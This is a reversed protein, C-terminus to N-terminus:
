CKVNSGLFETSWFIIKSTSTVPFEFKLISLINRGSKYYLLLEPTAPILSRKAVISVPRFTPPAATGRETSPPTPNGDLVIDGPGLVEAGLPIRIWGATQGCYVYASFYPPAATGRDPFGHGWRVCHPTPGLNVEM